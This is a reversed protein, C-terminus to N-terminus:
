RLGTRERREAGLARVFLDRSVNEVARTRERWLDDALWDPQVARIAKKLERLGEADELALSTVAEAASTVREILGVRLAETPGVRVGSGMLRATASPGISVNLWVATLHLGYKSSPFQIFSTESMTRMDCAMALHAGGGIAYGDIAALTMAPSNWLALSADFFAAVADARDPPSISLLERSDAGGCFARGGSGTLVVLGVEAPISLIAEKLEGAGRRDISNGQDPRDLTLQVVPGDQEVVIM